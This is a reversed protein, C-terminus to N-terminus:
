VITALMLRVCADPLRVGLPMRPQQRCFVKSSHRDHRNDLTPRTPIQFVERNTIDVPMTKATRDRINIIRPERHQRQVRVLHMEIRM